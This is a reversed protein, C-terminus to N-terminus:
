SFFCIHPFSLSKVSYRGIGKEEPEEYMEEEDEGDEIDEEDEGDEIKIVQRDMEKGQHFNETNDKEKSVDIEASYTQPNIIGEQTISVAQETPRDSEENSTKKRNKKM